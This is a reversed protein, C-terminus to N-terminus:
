PVVEVVEDSEYGLSFMEGNPLQVPVAYMDVRGRPRKYSRRFLPAGTVTVVIDCWMFKDGKHLRYALQEEGSMSTGSLSWIAFLSTILKQTRSRM